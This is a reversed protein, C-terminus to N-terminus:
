RESLSNLLGVVQQDDSIKEDCNNLDQILKTYRDINEELNLTNDFRFNYFHRLLYCKNPMTKTLYLSELKTWLAQTDTTKGAKRIVSDSLHLFITSWAIEDLEQRRYASIEAAWTGDLAGACRQQLLLARMKQRWLRFDGTDNWTQVEFKQVTSM